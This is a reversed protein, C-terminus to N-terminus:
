GDGDAAHSLNINTNPPHFGDLRRRQPGPRYGGLM